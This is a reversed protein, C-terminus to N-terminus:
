TVLNARRTGELAASVHTGIQKPCHEHEQHDREHSCSRNRHHSCPQSALDLQLKWNWKYEAEEILADVNDRNQCYQDEAATQDAFAPDGVLEEQEHQDGRKADQQKGLAIAEGPIPDARVARHKPRPAFEAPPLVAAVHDSELTSLAEARDTQIDSGRLAVQYLLQEPTM